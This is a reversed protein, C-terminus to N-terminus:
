DTTDTIEVLFWSDMKCVFTYKINIDNNIGKKYCFVSDTKKDINIEYPKNGNKANKDFHIIEFTDEDTMTEMMDLPFDEDTYYEMIPFDVHKKQFLSDNTFKEFFLDFDESCTVQAKNQNGCGTLCVLILLWLYKM